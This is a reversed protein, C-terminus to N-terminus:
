LLAPRFARHQSKPVTNEKNSKDNSQTFASKSQNQKESHPAKTIISDVNSLSSSSSSTTTVASCIPSPLADVHSTAIEDQAPQVLSLYPQQIPIGAHTICVDGCDQSVVAVVQEISDNEEHISVAEVEETNDEISHFVSEVIKTSEMVQRKLTENENKISQLEEQSRIWQSRIADM